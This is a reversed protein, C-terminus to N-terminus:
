ARHRARYSAGGASRKDRLDIVRDSHASATDGPATTQAGRAHRARYAASQATRIRLRVAAVALEGGRRVAAAARAVTVRCSRAAANAVSSLEHGRDRIRRSMGRLAASMSQFGPDGDSRVLARVPRTLAPAAAIALVCIGLVAIALQVLVVTAM